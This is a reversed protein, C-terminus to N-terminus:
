DVLEFASIRAAAKRDFTLTPAHGLRDNSLAILLDALDANLEASLALADDVLDEDEFVVESSEFLVRIEQAIRVRSLGYRRALVWACEALVLRNVFLAGEVRALHYVLRTQDPDDDIVLRVLINSDIAKM